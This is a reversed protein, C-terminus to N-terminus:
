GDTTLTHAPGIIDWARDLADHGVVQQVVARVAGRVEAAAESAERVTVVHGPDDMYRCAAQLGRQIEALAIGTPSLPEASYTDSALDILRHLVVVAAAERVLQVRSSM